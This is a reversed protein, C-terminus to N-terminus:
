CNMLSDLSGGGWFFICSDEDISQQDLPGVTEYRVEASGLISFRRMEKAIEKMEEFCLDWWHSLNFFFPWRPELSVWWKKNPFFPIAKKRDNGKLTKPGQNHMQAKKKQLTKNRHALIDSITSLLQHKVPPWLIARDFADLCSVKKKLCRCFPRIANAYRTLDTLSLSLVDLLWLEYKTSMNGILILSFGSMNGQYSSSNACHVAVLSALLCSAM